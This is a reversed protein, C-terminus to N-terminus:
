PELGASASRWTASHHHHHDGIAAETSHLHNRLHLKASRANAERCIVRHKTTRVPGTSEIRVPQWIGGLNEHGVIDPDDFIGNLTRTAGEVQRIPSMVEVALVHEHGARIHNTIEFENPTFWGDTPGLYSGDFWVDASQWIGDFVLWHRSNSADDDALTFTTRHLVSRRAALKPNQAWHGPVTITVWSSDDFDAEIFARRLADDTAHARWMGPLVTSVVPHAYQRFM